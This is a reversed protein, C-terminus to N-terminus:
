VFLRVLDMAETADDMHEILYIARKVVEAAIPRVAPAACDPFKSQLQADSLLKQPSGSPFTGQEPVM